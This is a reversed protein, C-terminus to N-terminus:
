VTTPLSKKTTRPKLRNAMEVYLSGVALRCNEMLWPESEQLNVGSVEYRDAELKKRLTNEVAAAYSIQEWENVYASLQLTRQCM